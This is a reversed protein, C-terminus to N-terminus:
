KGIFDAANERTIFELDVSYFSNARGERIFETLAEAAYKGMQGTDILLTMALTGKTVANLSAKSRYYGIVQTKGVCNYDVLAQYVAETDMEDMCVLVDPPGQPNQFLGRVVEETEFAGTSPIKIEEVRVRDATENATVMRNNIQSFIESQSSNIGSGSLLITVRIGEKGEPLIKLIQNGYEQGLQYSNVGVYSKRETSPADNLMTVVPIGKTWAESIREELMEEGTFELLIGDVGAAISRDMFDVTGYESSREKGKLEVYAGYRAAEEKVSQYVDNWFLSDLSDVIMVYHYAYSNVGSGHEVGTPKLIYGFFSSTIYMLFVIGFLGGFMLLWLGKKRKKM